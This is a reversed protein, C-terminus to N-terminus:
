PLYSCSFGNSFSMKKRKMEHRIEVCYTRSNEDQNKQFCCFYIKIQSQLCKVDNICKMDPSYMTQKSPSPCTPVHLSHLKYFIQINQFIREQVNKKRRRRIFIIIIIIIIIIITYDCSLFQWLFEQILFKDNDKPNSFYQM